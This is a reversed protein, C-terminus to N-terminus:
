SIKIYAPPADKTHVWVYTMDQAEKNDASATVMISYNGPALDRVGMMTSDEAGGKNAFKELSLTRQFFVFPLRKDDQLSRTLSVEVDQDGDYTTMWTLPVVDTYPGSGPDPETFRVALTPSTIGTNNQSLARIFTPPFKLTGEGDNFSIKSTNGFINFPEDTANIAKLRFTAEWTQNLHITGIDFPLHPPSATWNETDDRYYPGIDSDNHSFYSYIQTSNPPAYVYDFVEKEPVDLREDVEVNEFVVDMTTNVGAETKLDDAIQKYVRVLDEKTSAKYYRGGSGEALIRMNEDMFTSNDPSYTIAYISVSCNKAFVSMNQDTDNLDPFKYWGKTTQGFEEPSDNQFEGEANNGQPNGDALPDGYWNYKPDGLIVVAKVANKRGDPVRLVKISEYLGKRIPNGGGPLLAAIGARVDDFATSTLPYDLTAHDTYNWTSSNDPGLYHKAIYAADDTDDNDIGIKKTGSEGLICNHKDSSIRVPGKAGFSVLGVRDWRPIMQDIFVPAAEMVTVMHDVDGDVMRAGRDMCLVVDIPDPKLAWGDGKLRITVDVTENVTVEEPVVHTEVSLYPYNMWTLSVDGVIGEGYKAVVKCTGNANPSYGLAQYETTFTGPWFGITAIGNAITTSKNDATTFGPGATQNLNEGVVIDEISFLIEKEPIPNGYQDVLKARIEAPKCGPVDRSPMTEPNASLFLKTPESVVFALPQSHTVSRNEVATATITVDGPKVWPGYSIQAKGYANTKVSTKEGDSVSTTIELEKGPSPNGFEDRLTYTLIFKRNSGAYVCPPNEGTLLEDSRVDVKITCPKGNAVGLTSIYEGRIPKPPQIYVINEGALTSVTLTVTANGTGDVPVSITDSINNFAAGGGPSGVTFKVTEAERKSDVVNGYRDVMRVTIDTAGGATVKPSYWINDIRYPAAHDVYLKVSDELSEDQAVTATITATGSLTGPRFVATAKGDGDTEVRADAISGYTSNDVAFDVAVGSVATSSNNVQVMVAVPEGSGATVWVPDTSIEIHDPM